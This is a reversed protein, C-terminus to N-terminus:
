KLATINWRHGFLLLLNGWQIAELYYIHNWKWKNLVCFHYHLNSVGHHKSSYLQCLFEERIENVEESVILTEGLM